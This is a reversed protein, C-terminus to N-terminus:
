REWEGVNGGPSSGPIRAAPPECDLVGLGATSTRETFVECGRTADTGVWDSPRDRKSRPFYRETDSVERKPWDSKGLPGEGMRGEVARGM